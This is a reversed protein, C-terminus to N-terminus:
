RNPLTSFISYTLFKSFLRPSQLISGMTKDSLAQVHKSKQFNIASVVVSADGGDITEDIAWMFEGSKLDVLKARVGISIPRYPRYSHIDVMLVGNAGYKNVLQDFFDEPLSEFSGLREKGFLSFSEQPTVRAPEFLRSKSLEQLILDDIFSLATSSSSDCFAPMVAVRNFYTPLRERPYLNVPQYPPAQAIIKEQESKRCGGLFFFVALMLKLYAVTPMM